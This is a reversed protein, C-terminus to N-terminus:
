DIEEVTFGHIHENDVFWDYMWDGVVSFPGEVEVYGTDDTVRLIPGFKQNEKLAKGKLIEEKIIQRLEPRKMKNYINFLKQKKLQRM